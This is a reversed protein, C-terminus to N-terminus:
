QAKINRANQAMGITAQWWFGFSLGVIGHLIGWVVEPTLKYAEFQPGFTTPIFRPAQFLVTSVTTHYLSLGIAVARKGPLFEPLSYCLLSTLCTGLSIANLLKVLVLTTNNMGLFPLSQPYWFGQVILPAELLVHLLFVASLPHRLNPQASM